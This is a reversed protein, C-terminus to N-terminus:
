ICLIFINFKCFKIKGPKKFIGPSTVGAYAQSVKKPTRELIFSSIVVLAGGVGGEFVLFWLLLLWLIEVFFDEFFSFIEVLEATV